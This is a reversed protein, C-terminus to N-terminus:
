SSILDTANVERPFRIFFVTSARVGLFEEFLHPLVPQHFGQDKLYITPPGGTSATARM